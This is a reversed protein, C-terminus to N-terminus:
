VALRKSDTAILTLSPGAVHFLVGTLAYRAATDKTDAAFATHAILRALDAAAVTLGPVDAPPTPIEPFQDARYTPLEFRAAGAGVRLLEDRADLSVPGTGAEALVAALREASVAVRGPRGPPVTLALRVRVGHELNTASLTVSGDDAEVLVCGLVPQQKNKLTAPQVQRVAALIAKAPLEVKM